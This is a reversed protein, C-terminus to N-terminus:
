GAIRRQARWKGFAKGASEMRIIFRKASASLGPGPDGAFPTGPLPMFAHTHIMAGGSSLRGILARTLAEDEPTEGPLGFIFDFYPSIHFERCLRAAELVDDVTHGRRIAKLLRPSGTQAGIVLRRNYAHRKLLALTEPTVHEPRVESPFSGAYIRGGRRAALAHARSLLDELAPLDLSRGDPSGYAFMDPTIFRIDKLGRGLLTGMHGLVNDVSRHRQRGGFLFATQCYSCAFPCGRTIEIPGLLGRSASFPPCDDLNRAPRGKIVGRAPPKGAAIAAVLEPFAAEGEGTIVYDFGMDLAERPEASAHPGGAILAAGSAAARRALAAFEKKQSTFFSFAAAGAGKLEAALRAPDPPFSTEVGDLGAADLAGALANMSYRNERSYYLALKM